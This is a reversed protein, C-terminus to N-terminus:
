FERSLIERILPVTVARGHTLSADDAARVVRRAADFSREMRPALYAIIEPGVRVQRDAFLKVLVAEFMADDPADIAITPASKLRSMLDPLKGQWRAPPEASILLMHGGAEALRNFLHFLAVGDGVAGDEIVCCGDPSLQELAVDLEDTTAITRANTRARWVSALHTKGCGAPGHIVAAPGSWDPWRDIWAVADRNGPGVMFDERGLAPRHGLDFTLQGAVTM